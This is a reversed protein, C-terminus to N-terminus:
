VATLCVTRMMDTQITHLTADERDFKWNFLYLTTSVFSVRLKWSKSDHPGLVATRKAWTPILLGVSLKMGCLSICHFTFDFLAGMHCLLVCCWRPYKHFIGNLGLWVYHLYVNAMFSINRDLKVVFLLNWGYWMNKDHLLISFGGMLRLVKVNEQRHWFPQLQALSFTYPCLKLTLM